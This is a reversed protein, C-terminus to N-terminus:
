HRSTRTGNPRRSAMVVVGLTRKKRETTPKDTLTRGLEAVEGWIRHNSPKADASVVATATTAAYGEELVHSVVSSTTRRPHVHRMELRRTQHTLLLRRFDMRLRGGLGM